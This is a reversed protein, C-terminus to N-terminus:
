LKALPNSFNWYSIEENHPSLIVGQASVEVNKTKLYGRGYMTKRVESENEDRLIVTLMEVVRLVGRFAV